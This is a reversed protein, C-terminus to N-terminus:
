HHAVEKASRIRELVPAAEESLFFEYTCPPVMRQLRGIEGNKLHARVTSASIARGGEALRPIVVFRVGRAPLREAMVRNYIGTVVSVPEEGVFRGTISLRGAIKLFIEADLEAQVRSIEEDERLFYSPFSASSILYSGTRHYVINGIHKTGQRILRERVAFPVLSCDESVTFLHLTDCESAAKEVLHLHGLTFPNANLVVAGQMGKGGPLSQLYREFGDRRNEMFAVKGPVAAILHFGLDAFVASAEPKAYLFLHTNGIGSQYEVLRSVVLSMLGEGRHGSDVALCRLTNSFTSGTAVLRGERDYVGASFSLNRDPRIGERLLLSRMEGRARADGQFIEGVAYEVM